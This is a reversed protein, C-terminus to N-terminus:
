EIFILNNNIVNEKYNVYIIYFIYIFKYIKLVSTLICVIIIFIYYVVYINNLTFEIFIVFIIIGVTFELFFIIFTYFLYEKCFACYKKFNMIYKRSKLREYKVIKIMIYIISVLLLISLIIIFTGYIQYDYFPIGLTIYLLHSPTDNKKIKSTLPYILASLHFLCFVTGYLGYRVCIKKKLRENENYSSEAIKDIKNVNDFIYKECYNDFKGLGKRSYYRQKYYKMYTDLDNIGHKNIEKYKLMDEERQKKLKLKKEKELEKERMEPSKNKELFDFKGINYLIQSLCIVVITLFAINNLETYKGYLNSNCKHTLFIVLSYYISHVAIEHIKKGTYDCLINSIRRSLPIVHLRPYDKFIARELTKNMIKEKVVHKDLKEPEDLLLGNVCDVLLEMDKYVSSIKHSGNNITYKPNFLKLNVKLAEQKYKRQFIRIALTRKNRTIYTNYTNFTNSFYKSFIGIFAIIIISTICNKKGRM